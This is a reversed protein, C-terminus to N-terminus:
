KPNTMTTTEQDEGEVAMIMIMMIATKVGAKEGDAMDGGDATETTEMSKEEGTTIMMMMKMVAMAVTATIM